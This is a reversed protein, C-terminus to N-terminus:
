MKFDAQYVICVSKSYIIDTSTSFESFTGFHSPRSPCITWLDRMWRWFTEGNGFNRLGCGEQVACAICGGMCSVCLNQMREEFEVFNSGGLVGSCVQAVQLFNRTPTM